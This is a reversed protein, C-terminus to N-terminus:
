QAGRAAGLPGPPRAPDPGRGDPRGRVRARDRGPVAAVRALEPGILATVAAWNRELRGLWARITPPRDRVFAAQEGALTVTTVQAGAAAAPLRAAIGPLGRQGAYELGCGLWRVSMSMESRQVTV